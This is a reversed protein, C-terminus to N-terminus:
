NCLTVWRVMSKDVTIFNGRVDSSTLACIEGRRLSGFAALLVANLLDENSIAAILQKIEADGPVYITPKAKPPLTTTLRLDPHYIKLVASLVGHTNRVSKPSQALAAKNIEIQVMEQTLDALPIDMIGQLEARRLRKYETLTRTSLINTKSEIYLDWAKGLTLSVPKKKQAYYNAATAIVSKKDPGTFSKYIRKGAEDKGIYIVINWNGSPLKKAKAM